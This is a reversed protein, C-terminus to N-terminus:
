SRRCRQAQSLERLTGLARGYEADFEPREFISRPPTGDAQRRPKAASEEPRSGAVYYVYRSAGGKCIRTVAEVKRDAILQQMLAVVRPGSSKRTRALAAASHPVGPTMCALLAVLDRRYTEDARARRRQRAQEAHTGAQKADHEAPPPPMLEARRSRAKDSAYYRIRAHRASDLKDRRVVVLSEAILRGLLIKVRPTPVGLRSALQHAEYGHEGDLMVLLDRGSVRTAALADLSAPTNATM